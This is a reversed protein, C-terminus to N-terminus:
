DVPPLGNAERLRTDVEGRSLGTLYEDYYALMTPKPAAGQYETWRQTYSAFIGRRNSPGLVPTRAREASVLQGTYNCKMEGNVWIRLYGYGDTGFNTNVVVDVWRGRNAEMGWLRCINGNNQADGWNMAQRIEDLQVVVDDTAAGGRNCYATNCTGWNGDGMPTQVFRFISPQEGALKWQGFVSNLSTERTVSGINENYFSWGIWFDRDLRAAVQDRIESIEARARYNGCDSGGCDADRLEYRESQAGRRVPQPTTAITFAHPAPSFLLEFGDPPANRSAGGPVSITIVQGCAALLTLVFLCTLHLRSM